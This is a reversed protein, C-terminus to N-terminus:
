NETVKGNKHAIIVYPENSNKEGNLCKIKTTGKAKMKGDGDSDDQDDHVVTTRIAFLEGEADYHNDKTEMDIQSHGDSMLGWVFYGTRLTSESREGCATKPGINKDDWYREDIVEVYKKSPPAAESYQISVVMLAALTIIAFMGLHTKSMTYYLVAIYM